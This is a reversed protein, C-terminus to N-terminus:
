IEWYCESVNNKPWLEFLKDSANDKLTVELVSISYTLHSEFLASYFKLPGDM